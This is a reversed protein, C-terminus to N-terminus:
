IHKYILHLLSYSIASIGWIVTVKYGKKRLLHHEFLYVTIITSPIFSMFLIRYAFVNSELNTLLFSLAAIVTGALVRYLKLIPMQIKVRNQYIVITDVLFLVIFLGYNIFIEILGYFNAVTGEKELYGETKNLIYENELIDTMFLLDNAFSAFIPLLLLSGVVVYPKNLPILVIPTLVILILMSYHFEYAGWFLAIALLISLFRLQKSPKILYSLGLFYSSMGLTARAYNFKILFVAILFFVATNVNIEFRKFAFISLLFAGGWVVIRFFLYNKGVLSIIGKYVPEGYNLAHFSFDYEHVMDRYHFWDTGICETIILLLAGLLLMYDMKARKVLAKNVYSSYFLAVFLAYLITCYLVNGLTHESWSFDLM